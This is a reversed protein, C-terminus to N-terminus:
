DASRQRPALLQTQLTEALWAQFREVPWGCEIVLTHYLGPDNLTWILDAAAMPDLGKKLRRKQLIPRLLNDAGMRRQRQLLEWLARTEPDASSAARLVVHLPALRSCIETSIAAYDALMKGPDAEGLIEKSRGREVLAVPADDGVIAVDYAAKLLAAKGGVSTFVTARAVRAEDAIQDVTTVAYGQRVFLRTAAALLAARTTRAQAQRVPSAYQRKVKTGM